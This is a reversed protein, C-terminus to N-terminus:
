THIGPFLIFLDGPCVLLGGAYVNGFPDHSPDYEASLLSLACGTENPSRSVVAPRDGPDVPHAGAVGASGGLLGATMLAIFAKRM